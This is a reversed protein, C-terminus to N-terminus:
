GEHTSDKRTTSKIDRMEIQRAMLIHKKLDLNYYDAIAVICLFIDALEDGIQNLGVDRKDLHLLHHPPYYQEHAMVCRALDGVQKTLEILRVTVNWPKTHLREFGRFVENNLNLIEDFTEM